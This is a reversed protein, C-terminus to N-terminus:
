DRDSSLVENRAGLLFRLATHGARSLMASNSQGAGERFGTSAQRIYSVVLIIRRADLTFMPM